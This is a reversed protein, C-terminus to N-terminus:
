RKKNFRYRVGKGKENTADSFQNPNNPNLSARTGTPDVLGNRVSAPPIPPLLGPQASNAGVVFPRNPGPVARDNSTRSRQQANNGRNNFAPSQGFGGGQLSNLTELIDQVPVNKIEYFRIPNQKASTERSDIQPILRAIQQQIAETTSIVLQEGEIRSDYVPKPSMSETWQRLIDDLQKPTLFQARYSQTKAALPVDLSKMLELAYQIQTPLGILILQSTRPEIAIEIGPASRIAQSASTSGSTNTGPDTTPQSVSQGDARARAALISQLREALEDVAVHQAKIFRISSTNQESDLISILREIRKLNGTLDTIILSRNAPVPVINAAPTSLFPQLFAKIQNPDGRKLPFVQTVPIAPGLKEIESVSPTPISVQPLNTNPVIRYLVPNETSMLAYNNFQLASQLLNFLSDVPVEDPVQLNIKKQALSEDYLFRINLRQSVYEVLTTLQTEGRLNIRVTGTQANAPTTAPSITPTPQPPQAFSALNCVSLIAALAICPNLIVRRFHIM